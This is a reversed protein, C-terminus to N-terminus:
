VTTLTVVVKDRAILGPIGIARERGTDKGISPSGGYPSLAQRIYRLFLSTEVGLFINSGM